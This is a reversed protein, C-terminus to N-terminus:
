LQEHPSREIFAATTPEAAVLSKPPDVAADVWEFAILLGDCKEAVRLTM